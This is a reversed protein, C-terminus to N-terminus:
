FFMEDMGQARRLLVQFGNVKENKFSSSIIGKLSVRGVAGRGCLRFKRLSYDIREAPDGMPYHIIPMLRRNLNTIVVNEKVGEETVLNGTGTISEM